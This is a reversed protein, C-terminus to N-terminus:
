NTLFSTFKNAGNTGLKNFFVPLNTPVIFSCLHPYSRWYRHCCIECVCMMCPTSLCLIDCEQATVTNDKRTKTLNTLVNDTQLHHHLHHTLSESLLHQFQFKQDHLSEPQSPMLNQVKLTWIDPSTGKPEHDNTSHCVTVCPATNRRYSHQLYINQKCVLCDNSDFSSITTIYTPMMSAGICPISTAATAIIKQSAYFFHMAQQQCQCLIEAMKMSKKVTYWM